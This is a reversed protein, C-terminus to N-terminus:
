IVGVVALWLFALSVMTIHMDAIVVQRGYREFFRKVGDYRPALPTLAALAFGVGNVFFLVVTLYLSSYLSHASPAAFAVVAAYVLSLAMGLGASFYIEGVRMLGLGDTAMALLLSGIVLSVPLLVYLIPVLRGLDNAQLLPLLAFWSLFVTRYEITSALSFHVRQVFDGSTSIHPLYSILFGAGVWYLYAVLFMVIVTDLYVPAISTREKALTVVLVVGTFAFGALTGVVMVHLKSVEDLLWPFHERRATGRREAILVVALGIAAALSFGVVSWM